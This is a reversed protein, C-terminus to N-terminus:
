RWGVQFDWRQPNSTSQVVRVDRAGTLELSGIIFGCISERMIPHLEPYDEVLLHVSSAEVSGEVRSRGVTHYTSWVRASQQIMFHPTALRIFIRYITPLHHLAIERGLLRQAASSTRGPYLLPASAEYYTSGLEMPIWDQALVRPFRERDQGSLGELFRDELGQARLAQRM